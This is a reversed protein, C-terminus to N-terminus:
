LPMIHKKANCAATAIPPIASMARAALETAFSGFSNNTLEFTPASCTDKSAPGPRPSIRTGAAVRVGAPARGGQPRHFRRAPRADIAHSGNSDM